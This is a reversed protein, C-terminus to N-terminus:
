SKNLMELGRDAEDSVPTDPFEKKIQQYVNAAEKPNTKRMANAMELLALPRPVFASQQKDALERFIKVAEDTKGSRADIIAMQFKAM